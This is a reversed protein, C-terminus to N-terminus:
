QSIIAEYARRFGCQPEHEELSQAPKIIDGAGCLVCGGQAPWYKPWDAIPTGEVGCVARLTERLRHLEQKVLAWDRMILNDDAVNLSKFLVELRAEYGAAPIDVTVAHQGAALIRKVLAASTAEGGTFIKVGAGEAKEFIIYAAHINNKRCATIFALEFNKRAVSM